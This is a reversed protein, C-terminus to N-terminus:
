VKKGCVEIGDDEFPCAMEVESDNYNFTIEDYINIDKIAILKNSVVKVNPDFSHNIYQGFEDELHMNDGIHISKQTPTNLLKGTMVYLIENSKYTKTAYIGFPPNDYLTNNSTIFSHGNKIMKEILRPCINVRM